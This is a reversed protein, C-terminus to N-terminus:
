VDRLKPESLVLLSYQVPQELPNTLLLRVEGSHREEKKTSKRKRKMILKRSEFAGDM